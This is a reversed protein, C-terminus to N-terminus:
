FLQPRRATGRATGTELACLATALKERDVEVWRGKLSVLPAESDLLDQLEAASLPEGDLAVAVSFDLLAGAGLPGVARDGITVSVVPRPPREANWWDPVRVILGSEQLVPIDKLFRYAEASNWAQPQFVDNSAVLEGVLASHQAARQVPALLSVLAGRNKEQAYERLAEGLPRHQPRGHASIRSTYTALFAFPHERDRKNEALHFMVRGVLRWLPNKDQLYAQLGGAWSAGERCVLEGIETWWAELVETQLYEAGRMPPVSLSMASLRELAPPPAIM